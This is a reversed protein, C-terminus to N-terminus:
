CYNLMLEIMRASAAKAHAMPSAGGANFVIFAVFIKTPLIKPIRAMMLKCPSVTDSRLDSNMSATSSVRVCHSSFTRLGSFGADSLRKSPSSGSNCPWAMTKTCPQPVLRLWHDIFHQLARKRRTSAWGAIM